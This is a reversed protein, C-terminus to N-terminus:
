IVVDFRVFKDICKERRATKERPRKECPTRAFGNPSIKRVYKEAGKTVIGLAGIAAPTPRVKRPNRCKQPEIEPDRYKAIKEAENQATNRCVPVTIDIVHRERTNQNHAVIDPKNHLINWDTLVYADWLVNIDHKTTIECDREARSIGM